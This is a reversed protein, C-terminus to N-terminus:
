AVIVFRTEEDVISDQVERVCAESNISNFSSRNGVFANQQSQFVEDWSLQRFALKMLLM